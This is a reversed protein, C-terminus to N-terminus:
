VTTRRNVLIIEVISFVAYYILFLVVLEKVMGRNLYVIIILFGSSLLLKIVTSSIYPIIVGRGQQYEAKLNIFHSLTSLLFLFVGILVYNIDWQIGTFLTLLYTLIMLGM